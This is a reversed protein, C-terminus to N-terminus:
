QGQNEPPVPITLQSPNLECDGGSAIDIVNFIVPLWLIDWIHWMLSREHYITRTTTQGSRNRVTVIHDQNRKLQLTVPTVHTAGGVDVPHGSPMSDIMVMQRSGQVLYGCGLQATASFLLVWVSLQRIM